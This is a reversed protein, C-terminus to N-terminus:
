GTRATSRTCRSGRSASSSARVRSSHKLEHSRLVHCVDQCCFCEICKRFEQARDIDSQMWSGSPARARSSRRIRKNIEFNWSVDTVLDKIV